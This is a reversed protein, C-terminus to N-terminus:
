NITLTATASSIPAGPDSLEIADVTLAYTGKPFLENVTFEVPLSLRQEPLLQITAAATFSDGTPIALTFRVKVDETRPPFSWSQNNRVSVVADVIDGVTAADPNATGRSFLSVTVTLDPNQTGTQTTALGVSSGTLTLGTVVATVMLTRLCLLPTRM